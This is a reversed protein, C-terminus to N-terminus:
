KTVKDKLYDLVIGSVRSPMEKINKANELSKKVKSREPRLVSELEEQSFSKALETYKQRTQKESYAQAEEPITLLFDHMFNKITNMDFAEELGNVQMYSSIAKGDRDDFKSLIRGADKKSMKKLLLAISALRLLKRSAEDQPSSAPQAQAQAQQQEKAEDAMRDINSEHLAKQTLSEDLQNQKQMENLAEQYAYGVANEVRSIAENQDVNNIIVDRSEEFVAFAIKQLIPDRKDMPIGSRILDISKHFTWEGIFQTILSAQQADLTASDDNILADGALTCYRYLTNAIFDKEEQPLDAPIVEKAQGTLSDAFERSDFGAIAM